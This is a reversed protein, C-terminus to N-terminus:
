ARRTRYLPQPGWWETLAQMAPGQYPSEPGYALEDLFAAVAREQASTLSALRPPDRDPPRLTALFTDVAPPGGSRHKLVCEVFYPLYHRWSLPDLHFLGWHYQDFYADSCLDIAADFAPVASYDDVANGARLSMPPTQGCEVAFATFVRAVLDREINTKM